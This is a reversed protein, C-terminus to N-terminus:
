NRRSVNTRWCFRQDLFLASQKGLIFFFELVIIMCILIVHHHFLCTFCSDTQM